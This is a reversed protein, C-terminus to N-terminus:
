GVDHIEVDLTDNPREGGLPVLEVVIAAQVDLAVEFAIPYNRGAPAEDGYELVDAIRSWLLPCCGCLPEYHEAPAVTARWAPRGRHEGERLDTVVTGECQVVGDDREISGDALEVPDLMAAWRYNEWFPTEYSASWDDPRHAVLGDLRVVPTLDGAWRVPQALIRAAETRAAAGEGGDAVSVSVSVTGRTANLDLHQVHRRGRADRVVLEGPRTLWAEVTEEEGGRRTFHLSRWRWPSSRALARFSDESLQM